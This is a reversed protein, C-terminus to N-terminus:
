RSLGFRPGAIGLGVIKAPSWPDVVDKVHLNLRTRYDVISKRGSRTLDVTILYYGQITLTRKKILQRIPNAISYRSSLIIM